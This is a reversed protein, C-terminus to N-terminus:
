KKVGLYRGWDVSTRTLMLAKIQRECEAVTIMELRLRALAQRARLVDLEACVLALVAADTLDAPDKIIIKGM